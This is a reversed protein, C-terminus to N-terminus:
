RRRERDRFERRWQRNRELQKELYRMPIESDFHVRATNLCPRFHEIMADEAM